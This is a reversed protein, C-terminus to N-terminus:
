AKYPELAQVLQQLFDPEAGSHLITITAQTYFPKRQELLGTIHAELQHPAVSALLPRFQQEHQLRKALLEPTTELYITLGHTNMWDMNDFFCPTGGGTAIICPPLALSEHLTERELERFGAEGLRKFIAPIPEGCRKEILVDLDYFPIGMNEALRVGWFSKGCGMFGTLFITRTFPM